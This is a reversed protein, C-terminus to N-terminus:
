DAPGNATFGGGAAMKWCDWTNAARCWCLENTAGGTDMAWVGALCPGGVNLNGSFTRDQGQVDGDNDNTQFDAGTTLIKSGLGTGAVSFDTNVVGGSTRYRGGLVNVNTTTNNVLVGNTVCLTADACTVEVDANDIHIEPLATTSSDVILFAAAAGGQGTSLNEVRATPSSIYARAGSSCSGSVDGFFQYASTFYPVSGTSSLDFVDGVSSFFCPTAHFTWANGSRPNSNRTFTNGKGYVRINSSNDNFTFGDSTQVCSNGEIRISTGAVFNQGFICDELGDVSQTVIEVNRIAIGGGGTSAASIYIGSHGTLTMNSLYWNTSTSPRFVAGPIGTLGAVTIMTAGQGAGVFAAHDQGGCDVQTTYVGPGVSFIIPNAATSTNAACAAGLTTYQSGDIGVTIIKTSAILLSGFTVGSDSSWRPFAGSLDLRRTGDTISGITAGTNGLGIINQGLGNLDIASRYGTQNTGDHATGSICSCDFSTTAPSQLLSDASGSICRKKATHGDVQSSWYVLWGTAANPITESRTVTIRKSTPNPVTDASAPSLNTIGSLNAWALYFRYTSSNSCSGFTGSTATTPALTPNALTYDQGIKLPPAVGGSFTQRPIFINPLNRYAFPYATGPALIFPLAGLVVLGLVGILLLEIVHEIPPIKKKM